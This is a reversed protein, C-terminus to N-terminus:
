VIKLEHGNWSSSSGSNSGSNSNSGTPFAPRWFSSWLFQCLIRWMACIKTATVSLKAFSHPSVLHLHLRLFFQTHYFLSCSWIKVICHLSMQFFDSERKRKGEKLNCFRASLSSVSRMPIYLRLHHQMTTRSTAVKPRYGTQTTPNNNNPENATATHRGVYGCWSERCTM